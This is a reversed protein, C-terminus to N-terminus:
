RGCVAELIIREMKERSNLDREPLGAVRRMVAGQDCDEWAPLDYSLREIEHCIKAALELRELITPVQEELENRKRISEMLAAMPSEEIQESGCIACLIDCDGAQYYHTYNSKSGCDSCTWEPGVTDVVGVDVIEDFM